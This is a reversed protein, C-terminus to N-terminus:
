RTGTRREKFKPLNRIQALVEEVVIAIHKSTLKGRDIAELLYEVHGPVMPIMLAMGVIKMARDRMRDM